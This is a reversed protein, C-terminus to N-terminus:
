SRALFSLRNVESLALRCLASISISNHVRSGPYVVRIDRLNPHQATRGCCRLLMMLVAPLLLVVALAARPFFFPSSSGWFFQMKARSSLFLFLIVWHYLAPFRIAAFTYFSPLIYLYLDFHGYVSM